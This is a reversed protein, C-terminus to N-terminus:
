PLDQLLADVGEDNKRELVDRAIERAPIWFRRVQEESWLTFRRRFWEIGRGSEEEGEEPLLFDQLSVSLDIAETGAPARPPETVAAARRSSPLMILFTILASVVFLGLLIPLRWRRPVPPLEPM